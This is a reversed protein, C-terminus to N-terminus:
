EKFLETPNIFIGIMWWFIIEGIRGNGDNFPHIKEFEIFFERVTIRYEKKAICINEILRLIQAYHVGIVINNITVNTNRFGNNKESIINGLNIIDQCTLCNDINYIYECARVYRKISDISLDDQIICSKKAQIILEKRKM